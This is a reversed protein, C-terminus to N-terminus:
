IDMSYPFHKASDLRYIYIRCKGFFKSISVVRQEVTDLLDRLVGVVPDFEM